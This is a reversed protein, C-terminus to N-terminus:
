KGASPHLLVKTFFESNDRMMELAAIGGSLPVRHTILPGLDLKGSAMAALTSRWDDDDGYMSFGSNWTGLIEVERRM